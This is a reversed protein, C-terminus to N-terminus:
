RTNDGLGGKSRTSSKKDEFFYYKITIVIAGIGFVAAFIALSIGALQLDVWFKAWWLDQPSM